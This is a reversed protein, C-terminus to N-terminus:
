VHNAGGDGGKVEVRGESRRGLLPSLKWISYEHLKIKLHRHALTHWKTLDVLNVSPGGKCEREKSVCTSRLYYSSLVILMTGQSM